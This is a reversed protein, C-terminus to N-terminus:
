EEGSSFRSSGWVRRRSRISPRRLFPLFTPSPAPTSFLSVPSEQRFLSFSLFFFLSPSPDSVHSRFAAGGLNELDCVSARVRAHTFRLHVSPTEHWESFLSLRKVRANPITAPLPYAVPTPRGPRWIDMAGTRRRRSARPFTPARSPRPLSPPPHRPLSPFPARALALSRALPSSLRGGPHSLSPSLFHTLALSLPLSAFSGRIRRPTQVRAHIM